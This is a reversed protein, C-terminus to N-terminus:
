EAAPGPCFFTHKARGARKSAYLASDADRTMQAAEPADYLSSRTSGVSASIHCVQGNILMPAELRSILRKAIREIYYPDDCDRLVIIFEDGGVRAAIDYERIEDRLVRGVRVLVTDGAAHGLEDNIQKFFDLDLHLLTFPVSDNQLLKHLDVDLARRNALGTLADTLAQAQAAKEASVLRDTLKRSEQSVAGVAECLYLLEVTQDCPSFDSLTLGCQEVADAFSVGLSLNILAGAKHALLLAQARMQMEPNATLRVSLRANANEALQQMTTIAVPRRIELLDFVDAGVVPRDALLKQITPGARLVVGDADLLLHMPLLADITSSPLVVNRDIPPHQVTM